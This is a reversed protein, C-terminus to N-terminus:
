CPAARFSRLIADFVKRDQSLRKPTSFLVFEYVIQRGPRVYLIVIEERQRSWRKDYYTYKVGEVKGDKFNPFSIDYMSVATPRGARQGESQDRLRVGVRHDVLRPVDLQADGRRAQFVVLGAGPGGLILNFAHDDATGKAAHGDPIRLCYAFDTSSFDGRVDGLVTQGSATTSVSAALAIAMLYRTM